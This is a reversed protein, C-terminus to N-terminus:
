LELYCFLFSPPISQGVRQPGILEVIRPRGPDDGYADAKTKIESLNEIFM